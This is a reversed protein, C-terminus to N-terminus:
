IIDQSVFSNRELECEFSVLTRIKELRRESRKKTEIHRMKIREMEDKLILSRTKSSAVKRELSRVISKMHRTEQRLTQLLSLLQKPPNEEEEEQTNNINDASRSTQRYLVRLVDIQRTLSITKEPEGNTKIMENKRVNEHHRQMKEREKEEKSRLMENELCEREM